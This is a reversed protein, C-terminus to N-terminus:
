KPKQTGPERMARRFHRVLGAPLYTKLYALTNKIEPVLLRARRYADRSEAMRGQIFLEYGLHLFQQALRQELARIEAASFVSRGRELNAGHARISGVLALENNHMLSEPRQRYFALVRNLYALKGRRIIRFWLDIDEGVPWDERFWTSEEMLLSRRIMITQTNLATVETSLFNYFEPKCLYLEDNVRELADSARNVLGFEALRGPNNEAFADDYFWALDGFVVDLQPYRNFTDLEVALIDPQWIDDADIFSIFDAKAERIARNRAYSPTGHNTESFVRIRADREAMSRAIKLTDDTSGDDVVIVELSPETQSTVSRLTDRIYTGCNYAPIIVSVRM